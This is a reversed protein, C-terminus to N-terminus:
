RARHAALSTDLQRFAAVFDGEFEGKWEPVGLKELCYLYRALVDAKTLPIPQDNAFSLGKLEQTTGLASWYVLAATGYDELRLAADAFNGLREGHDEPPKNALRHLILRDLMAGVDKGHTSGFQFTYLPNCRFIAPAASDYWLQNARKLKKKTDFGDRSVTSFFREYRAWASDPYGALVREQAAIAETFKGADHLAVGRKVQETLQRRFPGLRAAFENLLERALTNDRGFSHLVGLLTSSRDIEGAAAHLYVPLSAILLDGPAMEMVARWYAPNRYTFAAVDIPADAPLRSLKQGMAVVGAYQADATAAHHALLPLARHRSWARLERCQTALDAAIYHNLAIEDPPFLRPVFTAAEALPNATGGPTQLRVCVECLPARLDPLAALRTQLARQVTDDLAPRGAFEFRPPESPSLTIQVLVAPPTAQEALVAKTAALAPKLWDSLTSTRPFNEALITNSTAFVLALPPESTAVPEDAATLPAASALLAACVLVTRRLFPGLPM